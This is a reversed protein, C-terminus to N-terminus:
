AERKVVFLEVAQIVKASSTTLTAFPRVYRSSAKVSFYVTYLEPLADAHTVATFGGNTIDTYDASTTDVSEQMKVALTFTDGSGSAPQAVALTAMLNRRGPSVFYYELDAEALGGSGSLITNSLLIPYIEEM